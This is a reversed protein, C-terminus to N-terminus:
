EPVNSNQVPSGTSAASIPVPCFGPLRFVTQKTQPKPEPERQSDLALSPFSSRKASAGAPPAPSRPGGETSVSPQALRARGATSNPSALPQGSSFGSDVHAAGPSLFMLVPGCLRLLLKPHLVKLFSAFFVFSFLLM